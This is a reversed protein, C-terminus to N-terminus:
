PYPSISEANRHAFDQQLAEVSGHSRRIRQLDNGRVQGRRRLLLPTAISYPFNSVLKTPAPDLGALEFSMADDWHLRVNAHEAVVRGLPGALHPDLEIVHVAAAREALARTLVGEGGGVELVVDAQELEADRVIARLLNPDALFNQGLRVM